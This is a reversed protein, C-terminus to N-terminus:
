YENKDKLEMLLNKNRGKLNLGTNGKSHKRRIMIEGQLDKLNKRKGEEALRYYLLILSHNRSSARREALILGGCSGVRHRATHVQSRLQLLSCHPFKSNQDKYFADGLPSDWCTCSELAMFFLLQMYIVETGFFLFCVHGIVPLKGLDPPPYNNLILESKKLLTYLILRWLIRVNRKRFITKRKALQEKEM